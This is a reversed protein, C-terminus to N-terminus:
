HKPASSEANNEKTPVFPEPVVPSGPKAKLHGEMVVREGEKLGSTVVWKDGVMDSTQVMRSHATNNEDIVLVSGAGGAARTVAQQPVTVANEKVAQVVRGRAFMGPLLDNDPNAFEARLLVMGTTPDVTVESFLFKGAHPYESGDELILKVTAQDSKKGAMAKKLALLDTSSQTFDFYIPDLQQITAMLTPTGEGVLAGETVQAKGIRGSIPATVTAYGLNLGSTALEAKASLLGANAIDLASEANDAEQKSVANVAILERFRKVETEAQKATAEARAVNATANNLAAELPAQDIKFLIDGAKVDAGEKFTKELLIGPVRARIEAVRVADVRGPLDRTITVTETSTTSFTVHAPPMEPPKEAAKKCSPLVLWTVSLPLFFIPRM